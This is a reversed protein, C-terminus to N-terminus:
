KALCRALENLFDDTHTMAVFHGAGRILGFYKEPARVGNFYERALETPTFTDDDGQIICYRVRVDKIQTALDTAIIAPFLGPASFTGGAAYAKPDDPSAGPESTYLRQQRQLWDTDVTPFYTALRQRMAFYKRLDDYPPLGTKELEAVIDAANAARAKQLTYDYQWKVTDRWSTVQGVGVLADFLEPRKRAMDIAVLSGWSHGAVIVKTVGLRRQLYEVLEIGDQVIRDRTVDTAPGPNRQFTKGAGRQDWQVLTFRQTWPEYVSILPSQVDAPGGHVWLLVPADRKRGRITVWQDIHGLPVFAAESIAMEPPKDDARSPAAVTMCMVAVSVIWGKM